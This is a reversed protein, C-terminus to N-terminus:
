KRSNGQTRTKESFNSQSKRLVEPKSHLCEARVFAVFPDSIIREVGFNHFCKVILKTEFIVEYSAQSHKLFLPVYEGSVWYCIQLIYSSHFSLTILHFCHNKISSAHNTCVSINNIAETRHFQGILVSAEKIKYLDNVNLWVHSSRLRM